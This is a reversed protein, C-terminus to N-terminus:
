LGDEVTDEIKQGLRNEASKEDPTVTANVWRAKAEVNAVISCLIMCHTTSFVCAMRSSNSVDIPLMVLLVTVRLRRITYMITTNIANGTGVAM